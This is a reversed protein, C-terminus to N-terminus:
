RLKQWLTNAKAGKTQSLNLGMYIAYMYIRWTLYGVGHLLMQSDLMDIGIDINLGITMRWSVGM